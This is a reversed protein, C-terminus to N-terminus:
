LALAFLGLFVIAIGTAIGVPFGILPWIPHIRFRRRAFVIAAVFLALVVLAIGIKFRRDGSRHDVFGGAAFVTGDPAVAGLWGLRPRAPKPLARWTGDFIAMAGDPGLLLASNNTGAVLRSSFTSVPPAPLETWASAGHPLKWARSRTNGSFTTVVLSDDSLRAAGAVELPFKDATCEIPPLQTKEPELRPTCEGPRASLWSAPGLPWFSTDTVSPAFSNQPPLETTATWSTGNWWAGYLSTAVLLHGDKGLWMRRVEGDSPSGIARWEAAGPALIEVGSAGPERSRQRDRELGAVSSFVLVVGFLVGLAL